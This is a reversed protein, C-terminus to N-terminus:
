PIVIYYHSTIQISIFREQLVKCKVGAQGEPGAVRRTRTARELSAAQSDLLQMWSEQM